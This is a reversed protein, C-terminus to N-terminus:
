QSSPGPCTRCYHYPRRMCHAKWYPKNFVIIFTKVVSIRALIRSEEGTRGMDNTLGSRYRVVSVESVFWFYVVGQNSAQKCKWTLRGRIRRRTFSPISEEEKTGITAAIFPWQKAPAKM